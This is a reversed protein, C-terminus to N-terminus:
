FDFLRYNLVPPTINLMGESISWINYGSIYLFFYLIYCAFVPCFLHLSVHEPLSVV